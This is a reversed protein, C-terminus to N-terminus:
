FGGVDLSDAFGEGLANVADGQATVNDAAELHHVVTTGAVKAWIDRMLYLRMVINFGIAMLLYGLGLAVLIAPHATVMAMKLETSGASPAVTAMGIGFVAGFWVGLLAAFLVMWGVLKWYVGLLDGIDLDNEFKVAGLRLGSMWWRWEIAKYMAYIFPLPVIMFAAPWALLWLWWGQKFFSGGTGEFSGQLDGYATHRMKFRELAANRWPLALGLTVVTFAGWLAARWAYSWGSGGMWFRVGRWITRTLRYRRARYMAFHSFLYFFAILPISAFAQYREAELGIFFYILYIPVLIALAVLFGILLEKATGTYEATDGGVSTHSWLHRRMDTALWFRYFGLTILELWSGRTLMKRFEPREGTFTVGQPASPQRPPVSPVSAPMPMHM